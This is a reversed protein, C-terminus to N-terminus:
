LITKEEKMKLYTSYIFIKEHDNQLYVLYLCNLRKFNLSEYFYLHMNFNKFITNPITGLGLHNPEPYLTSRRVSPDWTQNWDLACAHTKSKIGLPSCASPLLDINERIM